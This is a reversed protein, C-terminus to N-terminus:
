AELGFHARAAHSVRAMVTEVPLGHREALARCDEYEPSVALVTEGALKLKVRVPGLPTEIVEVRRGATVRETRRLRVGLTSSERLLLAALREAEGVPALVMLLTGPRNKKMQVPTYSVDLAGAALLREMLWGLAEGTMNDINSELVAIEDRVFDAAEGPIGAVSPADGLLLRLCNAWPLQRTGFGYGVRRVSLTPRAFTALAAVVAAGTPTVLEGEAEGPRWVAGTERLLELTAPAPVPLPGHATQVRGSTLPLESCYLREVGLLDLGLAVGVIDVISDVAGVEHFTVKAPTTGHIKAEAEALRTFVARARRQVAEALASQALLAEIDSLRRHEHQETADLRVRARTGSIGKDTVAEADLTYGPLKLAALGVRLDDLRLGADLLAGLLMDGSIGSFCDLYALM